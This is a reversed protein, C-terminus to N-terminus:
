EGILFAEVTDRGKVITNFDLDTLMGTGADILDPGRLDYAHGNVEIVVDECDLEGFDQGIESDLRFLKADTYGGRVDCGGHIQLLVYYGEDPHHVTTYQLVQSLMSEGNYTNVVRVFEFEHDNLWQEGAASVGYYDSDWDEVPMANFEKSLDDLELQDKLYHYVNIVFYELTEVNEPNDIGSGFFVPEVSPLNEFDELTMGQNREWQRGYAGGSDLPHRGTNETLMNVLTEKVDRNRDIEKM